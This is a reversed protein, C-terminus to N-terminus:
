IWGGIQGPQRRAACRRGFAAAAPRSAASSEFCRRVCDSPMPMRQAALRSAFSRVLKKDQELGRVEYRSM